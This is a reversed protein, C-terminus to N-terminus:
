GRVRAYSRQAVFSLSAVKEAIDLSRPRLDIGRFVRANDAAEINQGFVLRNVPGLIQKADVVFSTTPQAHLPLLSGTTLVSLLFTVSLHVRRVIATGKKTHTAKTGTFDVEAVLSAKTPVTDPFVVSNHSANRVM